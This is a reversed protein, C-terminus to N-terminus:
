GDFFAAVAVWLSAIQCSQLLSGQGHGTIDDLHGGRNMGFNSQQQQPQQQQQQPQLQNYMSRNGGFPGGQPLQGAM